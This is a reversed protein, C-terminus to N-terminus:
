NCENTVENSTVPCIVKIEGALAYRNYDSDITVSTDLIQVGKKVLKELYKSLNEMLIARAQEQSYLGYESIYELSQRKGIVIPLTISKGLKLQNIDTIEDCTEYREFPNDLQVSKGLISLEYSNSQRGTYLRYEYSADISDQYILTTKIMVDADATVEYSDVIEKSDNYVFVEGSVLVDTSGVTDGCKVMPTGKRTIISVIEGNYNALLDRSNTTADTKNFGDNEKIHIILKSGALEVSTWTIDSYNKRLLEELESCNVKNEKMGVKIDINSLFKQLMNDTLTVNGDFDIEWIYLTSIYMIICAIFLGILFCYHKRYRFLLFPIGTKKIIRFSCGTKRAVPLLLKFDKANMEFLKENETTQIKSLKINNAKCINFVREFGNNKTKVTIHCGIM